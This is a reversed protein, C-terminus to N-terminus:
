DTDTAAHVVLTIGDPRLCAGGFDWAVNGFWGTGEWLWWRCQEARAALGVVDVLPSGDVFASLTVFAALRGAATGLAGRGPPSPLDPLGGQAGADFLRVFVESATTEAQRLGGGRVSALPLARLDIPGSPPAHLLMQSSEWRRWARTAERLSPPAEVVAAVRPALAQAPNSRPFEFRTEHGLHKRSLPLSRELATRRLPLVGLPHERELLEDRFVQVEAVPEFDVGRCVLSQLLTAFFEPSGARASLVTVFEEVTFREAVGEALEFVPSWRNLNAAVLHLLLELHGDRPSRALCDFLHRAGDEANSAVLSEARAIIEQPEGKLVLASSRQRELVQEHTPKM